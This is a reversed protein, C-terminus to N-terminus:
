EPHPWGQADISQARMVLLIHPHVAHTAVDDIIARVAEVPVVLDRAWPRNLPSLRVSWSVTTASSKWAWKSKNRIWV